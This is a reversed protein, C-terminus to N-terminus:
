LVDDLSLRSMFALFNPFWHFTHLKIPAAAWARVTNPTASLSFIDGFTDAWVAVVVNRQFKAFALVNSLGNM